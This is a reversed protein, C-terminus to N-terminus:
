DGLRTWLPPRVGRCVRRGRWLGSVDTAVPVAGMELGGIYDVASGQLAELILTGILHASEAHLMSPKMDFYFNTSRGSVLKTAGGTSFSRSKVIEILRSRATAVM